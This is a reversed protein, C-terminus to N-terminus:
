PWEEGRWTLTLGAIGRIMVKCEPVNEDLYRGPVNEYRAREHKACESM